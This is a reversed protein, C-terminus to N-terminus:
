KTFIFPVLHGFHLADSSPGRGTYLYFPRGSEYLDLLEKLDRHSFFVGRKLWPHAKKGTLKEVRAILSEDILSSGFKDVLKNYDVVGKVEWPTVVTTDTNNDVSTKNENSEEAM